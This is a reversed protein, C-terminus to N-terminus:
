PQGREMDRAVFNTILNSVGTLTPGKKMGLWDRGVAESELGICMIMEEEGEAADCRRTHVIEPSASSMVMGHPNAMREVGLVEDQFNIAALGGAVNIHVMWMFRTQDGQLALIEDKVPSNTFDHHAELSPWEGFIYILRPDDIDQFIRSKTNHVRERLATRVKIVPDLKLM